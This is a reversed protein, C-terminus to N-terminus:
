HMVSLINQLKVRHEEYEHEQQSLSQITEKKGKQLDLRSKRTDYYGGTLAGRRSVQDGDLTICDLNQTRAIQTAVEMSRCILTKNFVHKIARDFKQGYSLKHMMPIADNNEPYVTDRGDLRNLPMFTVEGPLRLRNM